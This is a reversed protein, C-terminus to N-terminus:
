RIVFGTLRAIRSAYREVDLILPYSRGNERHLFAPGAAAFGLSKYFPLLTPICDIFCHKINVRAAFEIATAMLRFSAQGLRHEKKVMFKTCVGTAQPHFPSAAMGYLEEMAGLPGQSSENMRLTAVPVGNQLALIVTGLKDLDDALIKKDHDAYPSTRGLEVCYIQYRMRQAELLQQPTRCMVIEIKESKRQQPTDDAFLLNFSQRGEAVECLRRYLEVATDPHRQELERWTPDTVHMARIPTKTTVTATATVGTLFAIEGVPSGRQNVTFPNPQLKTGLTVEVAGDVLVFMDRYHKGKTRLVEGAPFVVEQCIGALRGHDVIVSLDSSERSSM